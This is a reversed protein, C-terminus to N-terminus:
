NWSVSFSIDSKLDGKYNEYMRFKKSNHYTISYIVIHDKGRTGLCLVESGKYIRSPNEKKRKKKITCFHSTILEQTAETSLSTV